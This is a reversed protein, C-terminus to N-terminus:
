WSIKNKGIIDQGGVTYGLDTLIKIEDQNLPFDSHLSNIGMSCVTMIRDQLKNFSTERGKESLKAAIEASVFAKTNIVNETNEM